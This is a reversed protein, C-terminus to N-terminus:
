RREQSAVTIEKGPVNAGAFRGRAVIKGSGNLPDLIVQESGLNTPFLSLVSAQLEPIEEHTPLPPKQLRGRRCGESLAPSFGAPLHGEPVAKCGDCQLTVFISCSVPWVRSPNKTAVSALAHAFCAGANQRVCGCGREPSRLWMWTRAFAAVLAFKSRSTSCCQKARRKANGVSRQV